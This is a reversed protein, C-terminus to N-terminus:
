VVLILIGAFLLRKVCDDILRVYTAEDAEVEGPDFYERLERLVERMFLPQGCVETLLADLEDLYYEQVSLDLISPTLAVLGGAVSGEHVREACGFNLSIIEEVKGSADNVWKRGVSLLVADPNVGIKCQMRDAPSRLYLQRISRHMELDRRYLDALSAGDSYLRRQLSSKAEELRLVEDLCQREFTELPLDSVEYASGEMGYKRKLYDFAARTRGFGQGDGALADHEKAHSRRGGARGAVDMREYISCRLPVGADRMVDIIRYYYYPYQDRLCRALNDCIWQLRKFGGVPHILRVAPVDQFRVLEKYLPDEVIEPLYPTIGAGSEMALYYLLYQEYIFNLEGVRVDGLHRRNREVFTTAEQCYTRILDIATGGFLGANCSYISRGAYSSRSFPPPVYSFRENIEELMPRYFFLDREINQCLLPARLWDEGPREWLVLDGDLHLFPERQLGYAHIKAMSWLGPPYDGPLEDLVTSISSYPLELLSGLVERGPTDTLLELKGFLKLAQLASLAWSMWHYEASLWGGTFGCIGSKGGQGPGSWFTQIYKM